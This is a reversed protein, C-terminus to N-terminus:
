RIPRLPGGAVPPPRNNLWGQQFSSRQASDPEVVTRDPVQARPPGGAVAGGERETPEAADSELVDIRRGQGAGVPDPDFSGEAADAAAVEGGDGSVVRERELREAGVGEGEAVFVDAADDLDAGGDPIPGDALADDDVGHEGAGLAAELWGAGGAGAALVAEAAAGG